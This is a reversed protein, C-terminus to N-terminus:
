AKDTKYGNESRLPKELTSATAAVKSAGTASDVIYISARIHRPTRNVLLRPRDSIRIRANSKRARRLRSTKKINKSAHLM